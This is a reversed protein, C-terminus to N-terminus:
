GYWHFPEFPLHFLEVTADLYWWLDEVQHARSEFLLELEVVGGTVFFAVLELSLFLSDAALLLFEQFGEVVM